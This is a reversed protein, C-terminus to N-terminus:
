LFAYDTLYVSAINLWGSEQRILLLSGASGKEWQGARDPGMLRVVTTWVM